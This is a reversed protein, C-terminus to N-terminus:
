PASNGIPPLHMCVMFQGSFEISLSLSLSFTTDGRVCRRRTPITGVKPVHVKPICLGRSVALELLGKIQACNVLCGLLLPVM